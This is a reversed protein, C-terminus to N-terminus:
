IDLCGVFYIFSDTRDLDKNEWHEKRGIYTFSCISHSSLFCPSSIRSSVNGYCRKEMSGSSTYINVLPEVTYSTKTGATFHCPSNMTSISQATHCGTTTQNQYVPQSDAEQNRPLHIIYPQFFFDLLLKTIGIPELAKAIYNFMGFLSELPLRCLTRSSIHCCKSINDTRLFDEVSSIRISWHSM